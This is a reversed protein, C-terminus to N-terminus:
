ATHQRGKGKIFKRKSPDFEPRMKPLDEKAKKRNAAKFAEIKKKSEKANAVVPSYIAFYSMGLALFPSMYKDLNYELFVEYWADAIDKKDKDSVILGTNDAQGSWIKLGGVTLKDIVNALTEAKKKKKEKEAESFAGPPTPTDSTNKVEDRFGGIDGGKKEKEKEKNKADEETPKIMEEFVDDNDLLNSKEEIVAPEAKPDIEFKIEKASEGTISSSVISETKKENAKEGSNQTASKEVSKKESTSDPNEPIPDQTVEV